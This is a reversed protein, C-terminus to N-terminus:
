TRGWQAIHCSYLNTVDCAKVVGREAAEMIALSIEKDSAGPVDVKEGKLAALAVRRVLKESM